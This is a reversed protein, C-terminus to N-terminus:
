ATPPRAPSTTPRWRARLDRADGLRRRRVHRLRLRRARVGDRRAGCPEERRRHRREDLAAAIDYRQHAGGVQTVEIGRGSGRRASSRSATPTTESSSRAARGRASRAWRFSATSTWRCGCGCCRRGHRRVGSRAARLPREARRDLDVIGEVQPPSQFDFVDGCIRFVTLAQPYREALDYVVIGDQALVVDCDAPLERLEDVVDIGRRRAHDAFPGLEPSYIVVEHGLRLLQEGITVLHIETGGAGTMLRNGLVFRMAADSPVRRPATRRRDAQRGTHNGDRTVSQNLQSGLAHDDGAPRSEDARMQAVRQELAVVRDDHTSLRTPVAPISACRRARARGGASRAPRRSRGRSPRGRLGPRADVADEVQGRRLVRDRQPIRLAIQRDVREPRQAEQQPRRVVVHRPEDVGRGARYEALRAPRVDLVPRLIGDRQVADALEGALRVAADEALREAEVVRHEAVVVDDPRPLRMRALRRRRGSRRAGCGRAALGSVM